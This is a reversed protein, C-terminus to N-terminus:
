GRFQAELDPELHVVVTGAMKDHWTQKRPDWAAWLFGLGLPLGSVIYGLYRIVAQGGTLPGGTRANVVQLGLAMKGPTAGRVVWFAVTLTLPVGWQLILDVCWRFTGVPLPSLWTYPTGLYTLWHLAIALPILLLTDVTMAWNRRWFGAYRATSAGEFSYELHTM